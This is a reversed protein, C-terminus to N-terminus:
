GACGKWHRVIWEWKLVSERPMSVEFVREQSVFQLRRRFEVSVAVLESLPLTWRGNDLSLAEPTLRLRGSDLPVQETGTDELLTLPESELVVGDRRFRALDGVWHEAFRERLLDWASAVTLNSAGHQGTLQNDAGVLWGDGCAACHLLSGWEQLRDMSNCNPCAHLLNSLGRALARGKVPWSPSTEPDVRIRETIYERIKAPPTKREFTRPPDFELHLRGKRPGPAWRPWVRHGNQIRCTVIPAKVMRALKEIGPLLPLTRGDWTREGEPFLGVAADLGRWRLLQKVARSDRAFKQKPVVGFPALLRARPGDIMAAQSVMFQIPRGAFVMLMGADPFTVHNSLVLVPGEKPFTEQGSASIQIRLGALRLGIPSGVRLLRGMRDLAEQSPAVPEIRRRPM